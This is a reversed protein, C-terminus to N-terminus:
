RRRRKAPVPTPKNKVVYSPDIRKLKRTRAEDLTALCRDRLPALTSDSVRRVSDTASDHYERVHISDAELFPIGCVEELSYKKALLPLVRRPSRELAAALAINISAEAASSAPTIARAVELWASDGSAIGSTVSEAFTPDTDIRKAIAPVGGLKIQSLVLEASGMPTWASEKCAAVSVLALTIFSAVQGRM